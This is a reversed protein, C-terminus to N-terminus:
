APMIQFEPQRKAEAALLAPANPKIPAPLIYGLTNRSCMWFHWFAVLLGNPTLTGISYGFMWSIMSIITSSFTLITNVEAPFGLVQVLQNCSLPMVTTCTTLLTFN